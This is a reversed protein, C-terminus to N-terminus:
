KWFLFLLHIIAIIILVIGVFKALKGVLLLVIGLIILLIPNVSTLFSYIGKLSGSFPFTTTQTSTQNTTNTLNQAYVANAVLLITLLFLIKKM